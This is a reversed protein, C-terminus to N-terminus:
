KLLDETIKFIIIYGFSLNRNVYAKLISVSVIIVVYWTSQHGISLLGQFTVSNIPNRNRNQLQAIEGLKM